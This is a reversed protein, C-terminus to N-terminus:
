VIFLYGFQEIAPKRNVVNHQLLQPVLQLDHPQRRSAIHKAAAVPTAAVQNHDLAANAHM